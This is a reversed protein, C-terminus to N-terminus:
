EPEEDIEVETVTLTFGNNYYFTFTGELYDFDELNIDSHGMGQIFHTGAQQARGVTGFVGLLTTGAINWDYLESVFVKM